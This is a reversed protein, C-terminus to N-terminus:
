GHQYIWKVVNNVTNENGLDAFIGHSCKRKYKWNLINNVGNGYTETDADINHNSETESCILSFLCIFSGWLSHKERNYM